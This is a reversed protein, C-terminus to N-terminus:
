IIVGLISGEFDPTIGVTNHIVRLTVTQGAVALPTAGLFSPTVTQQATTSRASLIVTGDVDLKFWANATGGAVFGQAYFDKGVPVVYSTISTLVNAAVALVEDYTPVPEAGPVGTFNVNLPISQIISVQPSISIGLDCISICPNLINVDLPISSVINVNGGSGGGSGVQAANIV